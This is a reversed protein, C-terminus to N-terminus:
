GQIIVAVMAGLVVYGGNFGLWAASSSEAFAAGVARMVLLAGATAVVGTIVYGGIGWLVPLRVRGSAYRYTLVASLVPVGLAILISWIM